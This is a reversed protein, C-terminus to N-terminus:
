TSLRLMLEWKEVKFSLRRSTSAWEEMIKSTCGRLAIIEARGEDLLAVQEIRTIEVKEEM